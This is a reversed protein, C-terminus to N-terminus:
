WRILNQLFLDNGLEIALKQKKVEDGSKMSLIILQSKMEMLDINNQLIYDHMMDHDNGLQKSLDKLDRFALIRNNSITKSIQKIENQIGEEFRNVEHLQSKEFARFHNNM